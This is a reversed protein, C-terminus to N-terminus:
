LGPHPKLPLLLDDLAETDDFVLDVTVTEVLPRTEADLRIWDKRTTVLKAGKGHAEELMDMIQMPDYRHHDPFARREVVVAGLEELTEFFKEPRAIGAFAYVPQDTYVISEPRPKLRGTLVTRGPGALKTTLAHPDDGIVLVAQVKALADELPERLPGAPMVRGNGLGAPGDIVLFSLDKTLSPNQLGDDMILIDADEAMARGASAMRDAGIWVTAQRALLLAEDGVDDASHRDPDVKIPGELRGGYGRMLIHPWWGQASLRVTLALVTPTKGGGGTTVNGVCIVPVRVHSPKNTAQRIRGILTWLRAVPTLLRTPLGDRDWFAPRRMM